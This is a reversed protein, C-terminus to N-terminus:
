DAHRHEEKKELKGQTLRDLLVAIIVVSLGALIGRGIEMRQVAALVEHGLGRAGIMSCTVVMSMSMMLTQNIGAMITSKAQPIQVKILTQLKTAGFANSAEVVEPDVQRIGLSTMRIVPVIAYIVTAIVAPAYGMGFLLLAPILYVFVPMTQMMDLVPRIIRNARGSTSMIMGTPLGFLLSIFVSTLVIALTTNMLTWLGMTGILSLLFAYLLGKSVSRTVQWGIVFILFLMLAWPIHNLVSEIGIVSYLLLNSITSLIGNYEAAFSRVIRDISDPNMTIFQPFELLMRSLSDNENNSEKNLLTYQEATMWKKVIDAHKKIFWEATEKYSTRNKQMYALAESTLASSTRYNAFIKCLEPNEKAFRNSSCITVTVSPCMCAGSSWLENDYPADKLLVMDYQGMLWTPEWYYAVIPEGKDYASTIAASLAADTGPEMYTFHNDLGYYAVKKKIIETISWGTIGGYIRGYGPKESDPFLQPYKALDAVTKLNPAMPAIGRKKDGEIVYRPVYFGQTNDDFNIGLETLRNNTLDKSYHPLNDTWTEMEIDIEENMLAEHAIISTASVEEWHYGFLREAILGAVANHFRVSDWGMDAFRITKTNSNQANAQVCGYIGTLFFVVISLILGQKFYNKLKM